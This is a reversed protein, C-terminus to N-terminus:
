VWEKVIQPNKFIENLKNLFPAIDGMDLARHDIAITLSIKKGARITDDEDVM